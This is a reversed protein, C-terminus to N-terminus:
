RALFEVAAAVLQAAPGDATFNHDGGEVLVLGSGPVAEALLRGDRPPITRDETGHVTLLAVRRAAAIAACAGATDIAM